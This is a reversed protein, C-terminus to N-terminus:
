FIKSELEITFKEDRPVNPQVLAINLPKTERRLNHAHLGFGMVGVIGAMTLTLDFHPRMPKVQTELIFRRITALLIVNTFAVVFSLGAIGTLESIQILVIKSH